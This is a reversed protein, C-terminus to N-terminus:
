LLVFDCRIGVFFPVCKKQMIVDLPEIPTLYKWNPSNEDFFLFLMGTVVKELNSFGILFEPPQPASPAKKPTHPLLLVFVLNKLFSTRILPFTQLHPSPPRFGEDEKHRRVQIRTPVIFNYALSNDLLKAFHFVKQFCLTFQKYMSTKNSITNLKHTYISICRFLM